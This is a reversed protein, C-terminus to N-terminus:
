FVIKELETVAYEIIEDDIKKANSNGKPLDNTFGLSLDGNLFASSPITM